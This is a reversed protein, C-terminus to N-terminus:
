FSFLLSLFVLHISYSFFFFFSSSPYLCFSFFFQPFFMGAENIKEIFSRTGSKALTGLNSILEEHTMGCGTDQIILKKEEPLPTIDIKLTPEEDLYSADSISAINAKSLADSANSILERLFIEKNSYFTNIILSMLQTIDANFAYSQM